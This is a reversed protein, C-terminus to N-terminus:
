KMQPREWWAPYTCKTQDANIHSSPLHLAFMSKRLDDNADSVAPM